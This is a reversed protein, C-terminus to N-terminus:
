KENKYLEVQKEDMEIYTKLRRNEKFVNETLEKLSPMDGGFDSPICNAPVHKEFFENM